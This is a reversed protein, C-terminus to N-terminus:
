EALPQDRLLEADMPASEPLARLSLLEDENLEFTLGALSDSVSSMKTVGPLPIITTSLSRIWANAVQFNSVGRERGIRNFIPYVPEDKETERVGRMPTWPLFILGFEECVDIVDLDNRYWPSLQNQVTYLGGDAPGGIESLLQRLQQANQNSVGMRTIIGLENLKALNKVQQSFTLKPDLRHHQWLDIADVELAKASAEAASALYDYSGDRGWKEGVSRTIGGKTALILTSKRESPGDWSKVAEALLRENHGITDYSPAYIDAVDFLQVGKDMALHLAALVSGKVEEPKEATAIQWSAKM